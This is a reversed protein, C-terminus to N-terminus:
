HWKNLKVDIKTIIHQGYSDEIEMKWAVSQDTHNELRSSTVAAMYSVVFVTLIASGSERKGLKHDPKVTHDMM